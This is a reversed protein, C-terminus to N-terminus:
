DIAPLDVYFKPLPAKIGLGRMIDALCNKIKLVPSRRDVRCRKWKTQNQYMYFTGNLPNPERIYASWPKVFGSYHIIVPDKIASRIEDEYRHYCYKQLIDQQFNYELPLLFKKDRFIYNLVDQDQYILIDSHGQIYEVFSAMVDNERWFHLNILLVGANVYGLDPSYQLRSFMEPRESPKDSVAAIAYNTLDTDWLPLLSKRVVIDGDLYLVKDLSEPLIRTLFLRYYTATPPVLNSLAPFNSVVQSDISYFIVKKGSFSCITEALDEKQVATVSEDCIIHFTIDADPNNVCVSYTMVGTPMYFDSNICVVIDM